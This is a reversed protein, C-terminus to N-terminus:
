PWLLSKRRCKHQLLSKRGTFSIKVTALAEQSQLVVAGSAEQLRWVVRCSLSERVTLPIKPGQIPGESIDKQAFPGWWWQQCQFTSYQTLKAWESTKPVANKLNPGLIAMKVPKIAMKHTRLAGFFYFHVGGNNNANFVVISPWGLGSQPKPFM